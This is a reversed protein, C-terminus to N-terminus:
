GASSLEPLRKELFSDQIEGDKVFGVPRWTSWKVVSGAFVLFVWSYPHSYPVQRGSISSM